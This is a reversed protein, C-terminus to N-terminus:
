QEVTAIDEPGVGYLIMMRLLGKASPDRFGREINAVQNGSVGIQKGIVDKHTSGRLAKLKEHDIVVDKINDIYGM